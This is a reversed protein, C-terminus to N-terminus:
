IIVAKRMVRFVIKMEIWNIKFLWIMSRCIGASVAFRGFNYYNLWIIRELCIMPTIVFNDYGSTKFITQFGLVGVPPQSVVNTKM